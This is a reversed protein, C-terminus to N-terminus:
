QRQATINSSGHQQDRGSRLFRVAIRKNSRHADRSSSPELGRKQLNIRDINLYLWSNRLSYEQLTKLAREYERSYWNLQNPIRPLSGRNRVPKCFSSLPWQCSEHWIQRKEIDLLYAVRMPDPELALSNPVKFPFIAIRWTLRSGSNLKNWRRRLLLPENHDVGDRAEYLWGPERVHDRIGAGPLVSECDSDRQARRQYGHGRSPQSIKPRLDLYLTTSAPLSGRQDDTRLSSNEDFFGLM